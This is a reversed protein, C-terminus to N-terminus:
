KRQRSAKSFYLTNQGDYKICVGAMMSQLKNVCLVLWCCCSVAIQSNNMMLFHILKYVSEFSVMAACSLRDLVGNDIRREVGHDFDPSITEGRLVLTPDRHLNNERYLELFIHSRLEGTWM